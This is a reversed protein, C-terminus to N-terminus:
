SISMPIGFGTTPTNPGEGYSVVTYWGEPLPNCPDYIQIHIPACGAILELNAAVDTAQGGFLSIVATSSGVDSITM